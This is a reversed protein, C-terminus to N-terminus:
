EGKRGMENLSSLLIDSSNLNKPFFVKSTLSTGSAERVLYIHWPTGQRYFSLYSVLM